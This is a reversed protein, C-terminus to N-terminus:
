IIQYTYTYSFRYPVDPSQSYWACKAGGEAEVKGHDQSGNSVTGSLDERSAISSAIPISLTVQNDTNTTPTGLFQGSVTVTSGVRLYQAELITMDSINASNIITPTYTGSTIIPMGTGNPKVRVMYDNSVRQAQLEADYDTFYNVEQIGDIYTDTQRSWVERLDTSIGSAIAFASQTTSAKAWVDAQIRYTDVASGSDQTPTETRSVIDIVVFPYAASQPAQSFYIRSAADTDAEIAQAVLFQIATLATDIM